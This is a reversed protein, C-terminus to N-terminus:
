KEKSPNTSQKTASAQAENFLDNLTREEPVQEIHPRYITAGPITTLSGENM